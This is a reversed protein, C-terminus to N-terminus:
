IDRMVEVCWWNPRGKVGCDDVRLSPFALFAAHAAQIGSRRATLPYGRADPEPIPDFTSPLGVWLKVAETQGQAKSVWYRESFKRPVLEEDM